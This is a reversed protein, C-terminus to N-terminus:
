IDINIERNSSVCLKFLMSLNFSVESFSGFCSFGGYCLYCGGVLFCVASFGVEGLDLPLFGCQCFVFVFFEVLKM